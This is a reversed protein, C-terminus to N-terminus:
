YIDLIQKSVYEFPFYERILDHDIQFDRETVIRQYYQLDYTNITGDFIIRMKTCENRKLDLLIEREKLFPKKIKSALSTLFDYVNKSCKSM